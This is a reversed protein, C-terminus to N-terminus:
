PISGEDKPMTIAFKSNVSMFLKNLSAVDKLDAYRSSSLSSVRHNPHTELKSHFTKFKEHLVTPINLDTHLTHNSIYWPADPNQVRDSTQQEPNTPGFLNRRIGIEPLHSLAVFSLGSHICMKKSCNVIILVEWHVGIGEADASGDSCPEEKITSPDDSTEAVDVTEEEDKLDPEIKVYVEYRWNYGDRLTNKKALFMDRGCKPCTSNFNLLGMARLFNILRDQHTTYNLLAMFSLQYHGAPRQHWFLIGPNDNDIFTRFRVLFDSYSERKESHTVGDIGGNKAM